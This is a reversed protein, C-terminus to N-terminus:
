KNGTVLSVYHEREQESWDETGQLTFETRSRVRARTPPEEAARLKDIQRQVPLSHLDYWENARHIIGQYRDIERRAMSVTENRQNTLAQLRSELESLTASVGDGDWVNVDNISRLGAM